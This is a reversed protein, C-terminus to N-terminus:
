RLPTIIAMYVIQAMEDRQISNGPRFTHDPYGSIIQKAVATEISSYFPYSPPVDTFSPSAPTTIPYHAANVVLKTLQGRTIARNPVFCPFTANLQTCTAADFGSIINAHYATEIYAYAFYSPPVDTFSQGSAPTFVAVGFGAVILKAFEGRSANNGPSYTTASTGNVVGHCNLWHIATYFTNGAIDTFPNPCDTPTAGSPPTNTPRTTPTAAPRPTPTAGSAPNVIVTAFMNNSDVHYICEYHVTGTMTFTYSFVQGPRMDGSDFLSSTVTHHLSGNNTWVVTTGASITLQRPTFAFEVVSVNVVTQPQGQMNATADYYTDTQAVGAHHAHENSGGFAALSSGALALSAIFLLAAGILLPLARPKNTVIMAEDKRKLSDM